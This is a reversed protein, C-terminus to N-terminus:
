RTPAWPQRAAHRIHVIWVALRGSEPFQEILRLTSQLVREVNLAGRPSRQDLYHLVNRLDRRARPTYRVRM